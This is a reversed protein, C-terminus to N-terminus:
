FLFLVFIKFIYINLSTRVDYTPDSPVETNTGCRKVLSNSGLRKTYRDHAFKNKVWFLDPDKISAVTIKKNYEDTGTPIWDARFSHPRLSGAQPYTCM